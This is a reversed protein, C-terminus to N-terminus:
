ISQNQLFEQIKAFFDEGMLSILKKNKSIDKKLEEINKIEKNKGTKILEIDILLNILFYFNVAPPKSTFFSYIKKEDSGATRRNIGLLPENDAFPVEDLDFIKATLKVDPYNRNFSNKLSNITGTRIIKKDKKSIGILYLEKLGLKDRLHIETISRSNSSFLIYWCMGTGVEDIVAIKKYLLREIFNPNFVASVAKLFGEEKALEKIRKTLFDDIESSIAKNMLPIMMTSSITAFLKKTRQMYEREGMRLLAHRAFMYVPFGGRLPVIILNPRTEILYEAIKISAQALQNLLNLTKSNSLWTRPNNDFAM